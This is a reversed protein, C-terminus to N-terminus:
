KAEEKKAIDNTDMSGRFVVFTDFLYETVFNLLMNMVTVLYENWGCTEVLWNGLLTSLPTFVAYYCLVLAMAKPVNNASQFTFKRNLTFNWVVSAVLAILYCPWYSWKALENLLTFLGIQIIGAWASFLVFPLSFLVTGWAQVATHGMGVALLLIAQKFFNDNFTGLTYSVGLSVTQRLFRRSM